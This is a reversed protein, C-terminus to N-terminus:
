QSLTHTLKHIHCRPWCHFQHQTIAPQSAPQSARYRPVEALLPVPAAHHRVPGEHAGGPEADRAAAARHLAVADAAGARGATSSTSRSPQSAPQSARYRPVEALLPVPAAHHRVPGEHAGGPEADRAAAARHLAVADAAGARGATSSTSRSPQSAPQSARYRPVEALLPVPAAHHRVPGEHAGGPEADRAAAARHLAVADAAGARGATSSTHHQTIASLDKMLGELNQM